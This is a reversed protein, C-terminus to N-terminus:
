TVMQLGVTTCGSADAAQQTQLYVVPAGSSDTCIQIVHADTAVSNQITVVNNPQSLCWAVPSYNKNSISDNTDFYVPEAGPAAIDQDSLLIAGSAATVSVQGSSTYTLGIAAALNSTTTLVEGSQGTPTTGGFFSSLYINTGYVRVKFQGAPFACQTSNYGSPPTYGPASPNTTTTTIGNYGPPQAASSCTQTLTATATITALSTVTLTRDLIQQQDDNYYSDGHCDCYCHPCSHVTSSYNDSSVPDADRHEALKAEKGTITTTSTGVVSSVVTATATATATVVSVTTATNLPLTSTVTLTTTSTATTAYSSYSTATNTAFATATQTQVTTQTQAPATQTAQPLTSTVTMTTVSTQTVPYSYTGTATVTATATAVSTQTVISAGPYTTVTVTTSSYIVSTGTATATLTATYPPLSTTTTIYNTSAASTQTLTATSAAQTSIVTSAPITTYVTAASVTTVITSAPATSVITSTSAALTTTMTMAQVSTTVTYYSAAQVSTATVTSAALTTTVVAGNTTYTVVATTAPPTYTLTQPTGTFVLTATSAALTTTVGYSSLVTSGPYSSLSYQATTVTMTINNYRVVTSYVTTASAPIPAGCTGTGPATITSPVPCSSSMPLYTYAGSTYM